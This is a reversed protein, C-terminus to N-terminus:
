WDLGPAKKVFVAHTWSINAYFVDESEDRPVHTKALATELELVRAARREPESFGALRFMTTAASRYRELVEKMHSDEVVYYERDPLMLGGQLLYAAYHASDSFGPALWFGFLNETHYNTVNLPDVDSRLRAGLAAAV